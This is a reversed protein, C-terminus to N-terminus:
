TKNQEEDLYEFVASMENFLQKLSECKIEHEGKTDGNKWYITCRTPHSRMWKYYKPNYYHISIESVCEKKFPFKFTSLLLNKIHKSVKSM